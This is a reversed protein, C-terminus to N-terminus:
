WRVLDDDPGRLADVACHGHEAHLDRLERYRTLTVTVTSVRARARARARVRVRASASARVRARVRARARVRVLYRKMFSSGCKRTSM